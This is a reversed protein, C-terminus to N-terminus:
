LTVNYKRLLMAPHWSEKAHRLGEDGCDEERNLYRVNPYEEMLRSAFLHAITEGAGAVNHNMKEIHVFAMDDIIEAVAFAVVNGGEKERLVVGTFPYRGYNDLVQMVERLEEDHSQSADSQDSEANWRIMAQELERAHLPTLTELYAEPHEAKFRNVHNRKKAMKKGSLTAFASADYVYDSWDNLEEVDADPNYATFLTLKDAPIASFRLPMDNQRCYDKLLDIAAPLSMAGIPLSFAPTDTHNEEVGTIFLTDNYICFKYRFYDIWMFIGGVTYDCTLSRADSLIRAIAPLDDLTIERFNLPSTAPSIRTEPYNFRLAAAPTM